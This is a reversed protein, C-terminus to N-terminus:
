ENEIINYKNEFLCISHTQNLAQINVKDDIFILKYNFSSYDIKLQYHQFLYFLFFTKDFINGCNYYTYDNGHLIINYEEGNYLLVLSVFQINSPKYQFDLLVEKFVLINRFPTGNVLLLQEIQLFDIICNEKINFLSPLVELSTYIPITEHNFSTNYYKINYIPQKHFSNYITNFYKYIQKFYIEVKSYIHICQYSGSILYPLAKTKFTHYIISPYQLIPENELEIIIPQIWQYLKPLFLLFLFSYFVM